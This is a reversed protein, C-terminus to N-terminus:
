SAGREKLWTQLAQRGTDTSGAIALATQRAYPPTAHIEAGQALLYEATRRHGGHCAQWFAEDLQAQTPTHAEVLDAARRTLGLGAAHWLKDVRAGRTLLLQAVRWCGYGVADDLPTGGAISAGMAEINAGGDILVEAVEFDDSSAAWHLPTESSMGQVLGEPDAGSALLTSAIAPGSPFYGPWDTVVHLLSRHGGKRGAIGVDVLEPRATLMGTLTDTDGGRIAAVLSVALFDTPQLELM